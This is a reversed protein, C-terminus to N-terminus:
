GCFAWEKWTELLEPTVDKVRLWQEMSLFRQGELYERLDLLDDAIFSTMGPLTMLQEKTATNVDLKERYLGADKADEWSSAIEDSPQVYTEFPPPLALASAVLCLLLVGAAICWLILTKHSEKM